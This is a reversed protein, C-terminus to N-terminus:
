WGRERSIQQYSAEVLQFLFGTGGIGATDPHLKVALERHRKKVQDDSATKELGLIRYPRISTDGYHQNEMNATFWYQKIVPDNIIERLMQNLWEATAAQLKRQEERFLEEM